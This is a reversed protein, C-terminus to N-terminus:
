VKRADAVDSPRPQQTLGAEAARTGDRKLIALLNKRTGSGAPFMTGLEAKITPTVTIEAADVILKFHDKLSPGLADYESWVVCGVIDGGTLSERDVSKDAIALAESAQADSLGVYPPTLLLAKLIATQAANM